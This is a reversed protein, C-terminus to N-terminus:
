YRRMATRLDHVYGPNVDLVVQPLLGATIREMPPNTEVYGVDMLGNVVDVLEDPQLNTRQLVEDGPSGTSFDIAKLVSMERGSLKIIKM